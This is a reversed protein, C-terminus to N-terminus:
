TARGLVPRAFPNGCARLPDHFSVYQITLTEDAGGTTFFDSCLLFMTALNDAQRERWLRKDNSIGWRTGPKALFSHIHYKWREWSPRKALLSHIYDKAFAHLGADDIKLFPLRRRVASVIEAESAVDIAWVGLSGVAIVGLGILFGRRRIM